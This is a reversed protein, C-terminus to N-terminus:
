RWGRGDGAEEIFALGGRSQGGGFGRALTAPDHGCTESPVDLPDCGRDCVKCVSVPITWRELVGM